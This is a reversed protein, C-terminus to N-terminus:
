SRRVRRPQLTTSKTSARHEREPGESGLVAGGTRSWLAREQVQHGWRPGGSGGSSCHIFEMDGGVGGPKGRTRMVDSLCRTLSLTSTGTLDPSLWHISSVTNDCPKPKSTLRTNFREGWSRSLVVGEPPHTLLWSM